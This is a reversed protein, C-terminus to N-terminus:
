SFRGEPRPRRVLWGGALACSLMTALEVLLRTFDNSTM